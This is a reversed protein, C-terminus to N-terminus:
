CSQDPVSPMAGGTCEVYRDRAYNLATSLEANLSSEDVILIASGGVTLTQAAVAGRYTPNGQLVVDTRPAYMTFDNQGASPNGQMTVSTALSDSGVIMIRLDGASGSTTGLRPNGSMTIPNAFDSAPQGSAAACTEPSHFFLNVVAGQAVILQSNGSFSLKCLSYNAGGLTLRGSGDLSLTRNGPNWTVSGTKPDGTPNTPGAFFRDNDNSAWVNGPDVPPLNVSTNDSSYGACQNGTFTHGHGVHAHGCLTGSPGTTVNGNTSADTPEADTGIDASGTISIGEDGVAGAGGFINTGTRATATLAIRRSVGDVTGMSVVKMERSLGSEVTGVVTWPKVRYTYSGDAVSATRESCWGDALPTGAVLDGLATENVCRLVDTTIVKNQRYVAVEAGADAIALARKAASDRDTGRQAQISSMVAVGALGMGVVIAVLVTPVAFGQESRILRSLRTRARQDPM